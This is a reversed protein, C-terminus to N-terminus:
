SITCEKKYRPNLINNRLDNATLNNKAIKKFKSKKIPQHCELLSYLENPQITHSRSRRAAFCKKAKKCGPRSCREMAADRHYEESSLQEMLGVLNKDRTDGPFPRKELRGAASVYGFVRCYDEATQISHKNENDLFKLQNRQSYDEDSSSSLTRRLFHGAEAQNRM